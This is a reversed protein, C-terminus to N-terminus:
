IDHVGGNSACLNIPNVMYIGQVTTVSPGGSMIFPTLNLNHDALYVNSPKFPKLVVLGSATAVVIYLTSDKINQTVDFAAIKVGAINLARSLNIIIRSGYRDEKTLYFVGDTGVSFIMIKGNEDHVAVFNKSNPIAVAAVQQTMLESDFSISAM